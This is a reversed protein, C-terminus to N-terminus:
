CERCGAGVVCASDIWQSVSDNDKRYTSTSELVQPPPNLGVKLWEWYGTLAWNLIGSLEAVLKDGLKRDQQDDAFKVPFRIVM